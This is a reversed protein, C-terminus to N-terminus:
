GSDRFPIGIPLTRSLPFDASASFNCHPLVTWKGISSLVKMRKIQYM